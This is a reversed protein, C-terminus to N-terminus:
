IYIKLQFILSFHPKSRRKHVDTCRVGYVVRQVWRGFSTRMRCCKTYMEYYVCLYTCGCHYLWYNAVWRLIWVELTPILTTNIFFVLIVVFIIEIIKWLKEDAKHSFWLFITWRIHLFAITYLIVLVTCISPSDCQRAFPILKYAPPRM